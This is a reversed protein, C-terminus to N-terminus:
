ALVRGSGECCSNETSRPSAHIPPLIAPKPSFDRFVTGALDGCLAEIEALPLATGRTAPISASSAGLLTLPQYDARWGVTLAVCM